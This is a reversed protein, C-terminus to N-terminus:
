FEEWDSVEKAQPGPLTKAQQAQTVSISDLHSAGSDDLSVPYEHNMKEDLKFFDVLTILENAQAGVGASAAAAEEVLSANHQTMDDMQLVAKNVQEIGESQEQSAAAIEAVIDSVKKVSTVIEELMQGSEDVLRTGGEVKNVSDKILSKIEKAATASRGALNRVESAVVAFGRGQEGARAAEVAANLALLNTQFAIEDIVVIIDEIKKSSGNIENMATVTRGVVDGGKEAQERAAKALQNAQQANEANQNVTGTMQEMSSAVEELSSAQEQTRQSLDTNGISVQEAAQRVEDARIKIGTIIEILKEMMGTISGYVGDTSKDLNMKLEGDALAETIKVLSAPESGLQKNINRAIGYSSMLCVVIGIALLVILLYIIRSLTNANGLVQSASQGIATNYNQLRTNIERTLTEVESLRQLADAIFGQQMLTQSQGAEKVFNIYNSEIILLQNLLKKHTQKETEDLGAESHSQILVKSESFVPNILNTLQKFKGIATDLGENNNNEIEHLGQNLWNVQQMYNATLKASLITLPVDYEVVGTFSEEVHKINILSVVAIVAM